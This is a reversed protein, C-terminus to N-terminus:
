GHWSNLCKKLSLKNPSIPFNTISCHQGFCLYKKVAEQSVYNWQINKGHIQSTKLLCCKKNNNAFYSVAISVSAFAIRSQKRNVAAMQHHEKLYSMCEHPKWSCVSQCEWEFGLGTMVIAVLYGHHCITFKVKCVWLGLCRAECVQILYKQYKTVPLIQQPIRIYEVTGLM